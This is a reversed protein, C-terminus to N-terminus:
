KEFVGKISSCIWDVEEFTLQPYFPLSLVRKAIDESVPCNNISNIYPLKNLSPYFYRRTNVNQLSLKERVTLLVKEDQFFIPFYAYNYEVSEPIKLFAL